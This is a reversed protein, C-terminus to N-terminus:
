FDCRANCGLISIHMGDARPLHHREDLCPPLSPPPWGGGQAARASVVVEHRWRRASGKCQGGGRTAQAGTV